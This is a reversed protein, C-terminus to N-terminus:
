KHIPNHRPLQGTKNLIYNLYEKEYSKQPTFEITAQHNSEGILINQYKTECKIAWFSVLGCKVEEYLGFRIKADTDDGNSYRGLRSTSGCLPQNSNAKRIGLPQQTEGVKVIEHKNILHQHQYVTIMYIWSRHPSYMLEENINCYFWRKATSLTSVDCVHSFGDNIYHEITLEDQM